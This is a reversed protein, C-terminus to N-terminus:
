KRLKIVGTVTVATVFIYLLKSNGQRKKVVGAAM